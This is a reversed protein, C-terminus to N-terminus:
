IKGESEWMDAADVKTTCRDAIRPNIKSKSKESILLLNPRFRIGEALDKSLTGGSFNANLAMGVYAIGFRVSYKGNKLLTLSIAEENELLLELVTRESDKDLFTDANEIVVVANEGYQELVVGLDDPSCWLLKRPKRINASAVGKECLSRVLSLTKTRHNGSVGSILCGKGISMGEAFDEIAFRADEAIDFEFDIEL